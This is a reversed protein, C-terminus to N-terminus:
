HRFHRTGTFVMAMNHENAAAIVEEDRVSGGPQIVAVAGAEAAADVGDRFPFFADSCVVSNQLSLNADKSKQVALKSSDVRSMQGAGVGLVQNANVYIVANSKVWKCVKWGFGMAQWEAETPQRKTVVKYNEPVDGGFDSNQFLYGGVVKKVDFQTQDLKENYEILRVNKKKTLIEKAEQSFSPAVIVELFIKSMAEAVDPTVERNFSFIGGFASVPDTSFAKEYAEFINDGIAAGCPNNHKLIITCPEEFEQALGIAANMDLINNFSLEKGHLQNGAGKQAANIDAYYAAKQHPNEGYRLDQIKELGINLYNPLADKENELDALYKSIESDYQATRKFAALSFKQRTELSIAGDNAEMEEIVTGYQDASTLIAVGTFNKAAARIMTPGGIDINEQAESLTVDPKAVTKEFPYLNVVVMDIPAIKHGALEDMQEQKERKALIGGHIFPHLTKVRGGLIEPFGTVDSVKTVPINNEILLKATGGTSLIEVRYKTLTKALDLIGTKDFVSILARKIKIEKM